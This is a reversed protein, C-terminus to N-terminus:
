GEEACCFTCAHLRCASLAREPKYAGTRNQYQEGRFIRVESPADVALKVKNYGADTVLVEFDQDGVSFVLKEGPKRQVVLM